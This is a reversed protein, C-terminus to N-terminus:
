RTHHNCKDQLFRWVIALHYVVEVPTQDSHEELHGVIRRLESPPGSDDASSVVM